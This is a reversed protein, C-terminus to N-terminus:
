RRLRGCFWMQKGDNESQRRNSYFRSYDIRNSARERIFVDGITYM